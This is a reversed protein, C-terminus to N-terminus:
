TIYEVLMDIVSVGNFDDFIEIDTLKSVYSSVCCIEKYQDVSTGTRLAPATGGAPCM